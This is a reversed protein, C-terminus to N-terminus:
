GTKMSNSVMNIYEDLLDYIWDSLTTFEFGLQKVSDTNICYPPSGNYPAEVGNEDLIVKTGTKKEVYDIIEGPSITGNSSGNIPGTFDKDVLFAMFKGAEDSSIFSMQNGLNNVHMPVSKMTNEVYFLLRKTYDDKGIVLPVRVAISSIDKYAQFIACEAQRKIEGYHFDTHSCWVLPTQYPDFDTETLVFKNIDYVSATSTHIYKDCSVVDLVAKIDNSCNAIKDIVVDFHKGDLASKVSAYNKRNMIIRKVRDGFNDKTTGRSAITVEHGKDLLAEIMPIGFFRTGGIVLINMCDSEKIFKVAILRLNILIIFILTKQCENILEPM